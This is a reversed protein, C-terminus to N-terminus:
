TAYVIFLWIVLVPVGCKVACSVLRWIFECCGVVIPCPGNYEEGDNYESIVMRCCDNTECCSRLCRFCQFTCEVCKNPKDGSLELAQSKLFSFIADAFRNTKLRELEDDTIKMSYRSWDHMNYDADQRLEDHAYKRYCYLTGRSFQKGNLAHYIANYDINECGICGYAVIHQERSYFSYEIFKPDLYDVILDSIEESEKEDSFLEKEDSFLAVHNHVIDIIRDTMKKKHSITKMKRNGRYTLGFSFFLFFSFFFFLFFSTFDFV